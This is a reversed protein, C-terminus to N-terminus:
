PMTPSLLQLLTIDILEVDPLIRGVIAKDEESFEEAKELAVSITREAQQLQSCFWLIYELLYLSITPQLSHQIGSTPFESFIRRQM